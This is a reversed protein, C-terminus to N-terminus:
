CELTKARCQALFKLYDSIDGGNFFEIYRIATTIKKQEEFPATLIMDILAGVEFIHTNNDTEVTIIEDRDLAKEDFYKELYTRPM